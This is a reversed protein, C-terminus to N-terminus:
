NDIYWLKLKWVIRTNTHNSISNWSKKTFGYFIYNYSQERCRSSWNLMYLGHPNLKQCAHGISLTPRPRLTLQYNRHRHHKIQNRHTCICAPLAPRTHVDINTAGGPWLAARPLGESVRHVAKDWSACCSQLIYRKMYSRIWLMDKLLRHSQSWTWTTSTQQLNCVIIIKTSSHLNCVCHHLSSHAGVHNKTSSMRSAWLPARSHSSTYCVYHSRSTIQLVHPHNKAKRIRQKHHSSEKPTRTQNTKKEM